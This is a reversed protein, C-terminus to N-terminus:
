LCKMVISLITNVFFCPICDADTFLRVDVMYVWVPRFSFFLNRESVMLFFGTVVYQKRRQAATVSASFMINEEYTTMNGIIGRHSLM